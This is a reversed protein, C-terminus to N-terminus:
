RSITLTQSTVTNSWNGTRDRMRIEFSTTETDGNGLLFINKVAVKLTGKIHVKADPPSLPPVFYYDPKELRTDKIELFNEDPDESGLDGDSDEYKLMIIISDKFEVIETPTVSILEIVPNNGDLENEKEEKKCSFILIMISLIYLCVAKRM